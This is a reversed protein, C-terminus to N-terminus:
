LGCAAISEFCSVIKKYIRGVVYDQVSHLTPLRPEVELVRPSLLFPVTTTMALSALLSHFSYNMLNLIM